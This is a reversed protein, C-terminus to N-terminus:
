HERRVRYSVLICTLPKDPGFYKPPPFFVDLATHTYSDQQLYFIILIALFSVWSLEICIFRQMYILM